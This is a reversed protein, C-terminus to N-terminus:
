ASSRERDHSATRWDLSYGRTYHERRYVMFALMGVLMLVHQNSALWFQVDRLELASSVLVAATSLVMAASMAGCDRWGCGRWRMWAVMPTVMFIAMGIQFEISGPDAFAPTASASIAIRLAMFAAMGAFMAFWMEAFHFVFYGTRTTLRNVPFATPVMRARELGVFVRSAVPEAASTPLARREDRQKRWGYPTLGEPKYVNLVTIALLLLLGAGPHFLDGGLMRLDGGELTRAVRATATVAPMHLVLVLTCLATLALSIVTWYHRFLGWRTGLSMVLGTVLAAIALPVIVWWGTVEMAIWAARIAESDSSEVAAIGLGLYAIVAGVWGLSTTLHVTLALKRVAPSM